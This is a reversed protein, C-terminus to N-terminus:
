KLPSRDLFKMNKSMTVTDGVPCEHLFNRLQVMFKVYHVM